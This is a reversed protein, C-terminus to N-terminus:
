ADWEFMRKWGSKDWANYNLYVGERRVAWFVDKHSYDRTGDFAAWVSKKDEWVAVCNYLEESEDDEVELHFDEGKVLRKDPLFWHETHCRVDLGDSIMPLDNIIHFITKTDEEDRPSTSPFVSFLILALLLFRVTSGM